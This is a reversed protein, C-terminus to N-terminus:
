NNSFIKKLRDVGQAVQGKMDILTEIVVDQQKSSIKMGNKMAKEALKQWKETNTMMGDIMSDALKLSMDNISKATATINEPTANKQVTDITTSYASKATTTAYDSIRDANAKIDSMVKNAAKKSEKNLTDTTSKIAKISNDFDIIVEKNKNAKKTAM